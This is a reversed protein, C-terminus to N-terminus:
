AARFRSGDHHPAPQRGAFGAPGTAAVFQWTNAAWRADERVQEPLAASLSRPWVPRAALVDAGFVM